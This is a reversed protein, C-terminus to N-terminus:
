IAVEFGDRTRSPSMLYRMPTGNETVPSRLLNPDLGVDTVSEVSTGLAAVDV